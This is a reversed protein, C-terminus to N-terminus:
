GGWFGLAHIAYLNTDEGQLGSNLTRTESASVRGEKRGEKGGGGGTRRYAIWAVWKRIVKHILKMRFLFLVVYVIKKIGLSAWNLKIISYMMCICVYYLYM